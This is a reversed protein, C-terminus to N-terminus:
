SAKFFRTGFSKQSKSTLGEDATKVTSMAQEHLRGRDARQLPSKSQSQSPPSISKVHKIPAPFQRSNQKYGYPYKINGKRM